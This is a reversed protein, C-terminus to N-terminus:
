IKKFPIRDRFVKAFATLAIAGAETHESENATIISLTVIFPFVIQTAFLL